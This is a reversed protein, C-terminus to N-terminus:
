PIILRPQFRRHIDRVFLLRHDYDPIACKRSEARLGAFFIIGNFGHGLVAELGHRRDTGGLRLAALAYALGGPSPRAEVHRKPYSPHRLYANVVHQCAPVWARVDAGVAPRPRVLLGGFSAARCNMPMGAM